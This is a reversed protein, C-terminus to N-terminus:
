TCVSFDGLSVSEKVQWPGRQWGFDLSLLSKKQLGHSGGRNAYLWTTEIPQTSGSLPEALKALHQRLVRHWHM